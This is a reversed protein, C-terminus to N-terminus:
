HGSSQKINRCDECLGYYFVDVDDAQFGRKPHMDLQIEKDIDYVKGCSRCKFHGHFSRNVDYRLYNGSVPLVRVINKDAFLNLTNYVTTRSLTPIDKELAEFIEDASPHMYTAALYNYVLIRIHSPKIGFSKLVEQTNM